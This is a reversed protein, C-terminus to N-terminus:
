SAIITFIYIYITIICLILYKFDKGRYMINKEIKVEDERQKRAM